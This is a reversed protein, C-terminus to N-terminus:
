NIIYDTLNMGQVVAPLGILVAAVVMAQTARSKSDPDDNRFANVLQFIGYVLSIVGIAVFIPCIVDDIMMQIISSLSASGAAFTPFATTLVLLLAFVAFHSVSKLYRMRKTNCETKEQKRAGVTRGGCSVNPQFIM